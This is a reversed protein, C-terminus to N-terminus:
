VCPGTLSSCAPCESPARPVGAPFPLSPRGPGLSLSSGAEPEVSAGGLRSLPGLLPGEPPGLAPAPSPTRVGEMQPADPSAPLPCSELAGGGVGCGPPLPSAPVVHEFPVPSFYVRCLLSIVLYMVFWESLSQGERRFSPSLCVWRSM